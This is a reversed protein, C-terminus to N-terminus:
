RCGWDSDRSADTIRIITGSWTGNARDCRRSLLRVAVLRSILTAYRLAMTGDRVGDMVDM